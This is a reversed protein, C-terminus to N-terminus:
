PVRSWPVVMERAVSSNPELLYGARIPGCLKREASTRASFLHPATPKWQDSVDKVGSTLRKAVKVAIDFIEAYEDFRIM